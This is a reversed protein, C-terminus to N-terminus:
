QKNAFKINVMGKNTGVGVFDEEDSAESQSLTNDIEVWEDDENLYHVATDYLAVYYSGDSMRIYKTNENRLTVDEDVAYVKESEDAQGSTPEQLTYAIADDGREIEAAFVSMPLVSILIAVSLLVTFFRTTFKKM